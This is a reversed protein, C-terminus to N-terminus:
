MEGRFVSDQLSAFLNNMQLLIESADGKVRLVSAIRSAYQEQLAIPPLPIELNRVDVLHLHKIAVGKNKELLHSLMSPTRLLGVLFQGNIKSRDHKILCVSEFLSFQYDRDIVAVAGLSGSKALLVDGVEPNCRKVLQKHEDETIYKGSGWEIRENKLDKASLFEVGSEVYTPTKHTGDTIKKAVDDLRCIKWKKPNAVPDGFMDVFISQAMSGLLALAEKRKARLKDVKDLIVAIRRQEEISPLPIELSGIDERNVQKFTAGKGKAALMPAHHGLWHWLFVSDLGNKPRLGAVGRGLCYEADSWVKEGITARIGLVIDGPGCKKWAVTTFKKPKPYIEGFDGAGAILPLGEGSNNYTDGSPAQGMTIECVSDLRMATTM